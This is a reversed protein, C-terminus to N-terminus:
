SHVLGMDFVLFAGQRGADFQIRVLTRKFRIPLHHRDHMLLPTLDNPLNEGGKTRSEPM